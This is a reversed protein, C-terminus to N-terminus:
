EKCRAHVAYKYQLVSNGDDDDDDTKHSRTGDVRVAILKTLNVLKNVHDRDGDVIINHKGVLMVCGGPFMSAFEVGGVVFRHDDEHGPYECLDKIQQLSVPKSKITTGNKHNCKDYIHGICLYGELLSGTQEQVQQM